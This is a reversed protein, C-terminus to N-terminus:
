GTQKKSPCGPDSEPHEKRKRNNLWCAACIHMVPVPAEGANIQCMHPSSLTCKGSQFEKCWYVDTNKTRKEEQVTKGTAAAPLPNTPIAPTHIMTEYGSFDDTWEKDGLEIEEVISEFLTRILPMNQSKAYWHAMLVMVRLRGMGRERTDQQCLMSYIIRSEGAIFAKFSLTDFTAHKIYKKSIGMHPWVEQRLLKGHSKAWKGSALPKTNSCGCTPKEGKSCNHKGLDQTYDFMTNINLSNRGAEGVPYQPPGRRRQEEDALHMMDQPLLDLRRLHSYGPTPCTGLDPAAGTGADLDIEDIEARKKLDRQRQREAM